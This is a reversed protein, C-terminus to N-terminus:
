CPKEEKTDAAPRQQQRARYDDLEKRMDADRPMSDEFYADRERWGAIFAAEVTAEREKEAAALAAQAAALAAVVRKAAEPLPEAVFCGTNAGDAMLEHERVALIRDLEADAARWNARLSAANREAAALAARLARFTEGKDSEWGDLWREMRDLRDVSLAAPNPTAPDTM